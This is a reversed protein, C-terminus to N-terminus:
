AAHGGFSNKMGKSVEKLLNRCQLSAGHRDRHDLHAGRCQPVRSPCLGMEVATCGRAGAGSTSQAVPQWRRGHVDPQSPPRRAASRKTGGQVTERRPGRERGDGGGPSVGPAGVQPGGGRKGGRRSCLCPPAFPMLKMGSRRGGSPPSESYRSPMVCSPRRPTSCCTNSRSPASRSNMDATWSTASERCGTKVLRGSSSGMKAASHSGSRCALSCCPQQM